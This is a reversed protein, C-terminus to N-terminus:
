RLPDPAGSGSITVGTVRGQLHAGLNAAPTSKLEMVNVVAIAGVIDEKRQTSYGTVVVENLHTTAITLSIDM